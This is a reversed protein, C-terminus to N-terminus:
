YQSCLCHCNTDARSLQTCTCGFMISLCSWQHLGNMWSRRGSIMQLTVPPQFRDQSVITCKPDTALGVSDICLHYNVPTVLECLNCLYKRRLVQLSSDSHSEGEATHCCHSGSIVSILRVTATKSNQQMLLMESESWHPHPFILLCTM